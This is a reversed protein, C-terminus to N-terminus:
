QIFAVEPHPLHVKPYMIKTPPTMVSAWPHTSALLEKPNGFSQLPGKQTARLHTKLSGFFILPDDYFSFVQKAAGTRLCGQLNLRNLMLSCYNSNQLSNDLTTVGHTFFTTQHRPTGKPITESLSEWEIDRNQFLKGSAM